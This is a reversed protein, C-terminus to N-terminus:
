QDFDNYHRLDTKSLLSKWLPEVSAIYDAVTWTEQYSSYAILLFIIGFVYAVTALYLGPIEEGSIFHEMAILMAANVYLGWGSIYLLLKRPTVVRDLLLIVAYIVFVIGIRFHTVIGNTKAEIELVTPSPAARVMIFAAIVYHLALWRPISLIRLFLFPPRKVEM